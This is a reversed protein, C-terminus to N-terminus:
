HGLKLEGQVLIEYPDVNVYRRHRHGVFEVQLTTGALALNLRDIVEVSGSRKLDAVVTIWATELFRQPDSGFADFLKPFPSEEIKVAQNLGRIMVEHTVDNLQRLTSAGQNERYLHKSLLLREVRMRAFDDASAAGSGAEMFTNFDTQTPAFTLNWTVDGNAVHRTATAAKAVAVDLAYALVVNPHEQRLHSFFSDAESGRV